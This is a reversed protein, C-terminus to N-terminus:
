GHQFFGGGIILRLPVAYWGPALSPVLRICRALLANIRTNM